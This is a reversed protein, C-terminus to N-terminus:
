LLKSIENVRNEATQKLEALMVKLSEFDISTKKHQEFLGALKQTAADLLSDISTTAAYKFSKKEKTSAAVWTKISSGARGMRTGHYKVLGTQVANYRIATVAVQQGGTLGALEKDTVGEPRELIAVIVRQRLSKTEKVTNNM